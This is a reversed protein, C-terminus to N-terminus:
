TIETADISEIFGYDDRNVEFLWKKPGTQITEEPAAPKEAKKTPKKVIPAVVMAETDQEEVYYGMRKLEALKHPSLKM